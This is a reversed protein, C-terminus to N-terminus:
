RNKSELTYHVVFTAMALHGDTICEHSHVHLAVCVFVRICMIIWLYMDVCFKGKQHLNSGRWQLSIGLAFLM